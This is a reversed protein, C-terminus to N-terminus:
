VPIRPVFNPRISTVVAKGQHKTIEHVVVRLNDVNKEDFFCVSGKVGKHDINIIQKMKDRYFILTMLKAGVCNSLEHMDGGNTAISFSM